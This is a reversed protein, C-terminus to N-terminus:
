LISKTKTKNKAPKNQKSTQKNTQIYTQQKTQKKMVEGPYPVEWSTAMQASYSAQDGNRKLLDDAVFVCIWLLLLDGMIEM